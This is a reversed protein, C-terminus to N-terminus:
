SVTGTPIKGNASLWGYVQDKLNDYLTKAGNAMTNMLPLLDGSPILFEERRVEVFEGAVTNGYAIIVRGVSTNPDTPPLAFDLEVVNVTDVDVNGQNIPVSIPADPTFPM